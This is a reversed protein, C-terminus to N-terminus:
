ETRDEGTAGLDASVPSAAPDAEIKASHSGYENERVVLWAWRLKRCVHPEGVFCDLCGEGASMVADTGLSRSIVTPLVAVVRGSM